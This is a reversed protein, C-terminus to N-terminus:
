ISEVSSGVDLVSIMTFETGADVQQMVTGLWVHECTEATHAEYM